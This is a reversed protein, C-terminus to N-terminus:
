DIKLNSGITTSDISLFRLLADKNQSIGIRKTAILKPRLGIDYCFFHESKEGCFDFGNFSKDIMLDRCLKGPGDILKEQPQLLKVGRILVASPYGAKETVINLCFYMGYILYVYLHGASLFMASNRASIKRAGHSAPDNGHYSETETIIAKFVIEQKEKKHGIVLLKGILQKSVENTKQLFFERSLKKYRMKM